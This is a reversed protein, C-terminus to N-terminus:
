LFLPSFGSILIKSSLIDIPILPRIEKHLFQLMGSTTSGNYNSIDPWIRYFNLVNLSSKKNFCIDRFLEFFYRWITFNFKKRWFNKRCFNWSLRVTHGLIKNPELSTISLRSFYNEWLIRYCKALYRSIQRIRKCSVTWFNLLQNM